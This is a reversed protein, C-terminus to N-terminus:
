FISSCYCLMYLLALNYLPVVIELVYFLNFYKIFAQNDNCDHKQMQFHNNALLVWQSYFGCIPIFYPKQLNKTIDSNIPCIEM